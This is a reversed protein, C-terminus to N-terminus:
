LDNLTQLVEDSRIRRQHKGVMGKNIRATISDIDWSDALANCGHFEWYWAATLTADPALAVLEPKEVYPRKLQAAANMYNNKLTLQIIGRGRYRWGDGSEISGNGGLNAYATNALAQPKRVLSLALADTPVKTKFIQRIRGPTTYYLGEELRTFNESEIACQGIFAALRRTTNIQFTDCAYRMPREFERAQNPNIGCQILLATDISVPQFVKNM